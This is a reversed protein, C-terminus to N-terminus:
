SSVRVIRGQKLPAIEPGSSSIGSPSEDSKAINGSRTQLVPIHLVNDDMWIILPASYSLLKNLLKQVLRNSASQGYYGESIATLMLFEIFLASERRCRGPDPFRLFSLLEYLFQSALSSKHVSTKPSRLGVTIRYYTLYNVIILCTLEM